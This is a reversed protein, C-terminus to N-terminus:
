YKVFPAPASTPALEVYFTSGVGMGNPVVVENVRGDPAQVRIAEGPEVGPPVTVEVKNINGPEAPPPGPVRMM